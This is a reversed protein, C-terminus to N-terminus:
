FPLEEINVIPIEQEKVQENAIDESTVFKRPPALDDKIFNVVELQTVQLSLTSQEVGNRDKYQKIRCSGQVFVKTGKKLYQASLERWWSCDVWITREVKNGQQDRYNDAVAVSFNIVKKGSVINERVDQGLNGIIQYNNM